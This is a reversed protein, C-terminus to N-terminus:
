CFFTFCNVLDINKETYPTAAIFNTTPHMPMGEFGSSPSSHAKEVFVSQPEAGEKLFIQTDYYPLSSVEVAKGELSEVPEFGNRTFLKSGAPILM